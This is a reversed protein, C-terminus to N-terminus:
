DRVGMCAKVISKMYLGITRQAGIYYQMFRGDPVTFGTHTHEWLWSPLRKASNAVAENQLNCGVAAGTDSQSQVVEGDLLRTLQSWLRPECTWMKVNRRLLSMVRNTDQMENVDCFTGPSGSTNWKEKKKEGKWWKNSKNPVSTLDQWLTWYTRTKKCRRCNM